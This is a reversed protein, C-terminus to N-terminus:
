QFDDEKSSDTSGSASASASQSDAQQRVQIKELKQRFQEPVAKREEETNVPGSFVVEGKPNKATLTRKGNEASVEIEGDNDKLVLRAKAADLKTLGDNSFVSIRAGGGPRAEKLIDAPPVGARDRRRGEPAPAGQQEQWNRMRDHYRRIEDHFRQMEEPGGRPDLMPVDGFPNDGGRRQPMAHEAITVPLKQEQGKRLVTLTVSADKGAARVLAALQNPDVLQQDNLLKIVDFKQIGAKAAPSDPLVDQVLVGFGEPLGLQAGLEPPVPATMVGLFPQPKSPM